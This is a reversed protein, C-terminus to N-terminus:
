LKWATLTTSSVNGAPDRVEITVTNDGSASLPVVATFSANLVAVWTNGGDVSYELDSLPIAPDSVNLVATMSGTTTATAGGQWSATLTPPTTLPLVQLTYIPSVSADSFEFQASVPNVEGLTLGVPMTDVYPLWPSWAAGDHSVRVSTPTGTPAFQLAAEGSGVVAVTQGGLTITGSASPITLAGSSGNNQAQPTSTVYAIKGSADSTLGNSDKAEVTVTHSGVVAPITVTTTPTYAQWATWTGGDVQFRIQGQGNSFGSGQISLTVPVTTSSTTPQGNNLQMQIVPPTANILELISASFSSSITGDLSLVQAYVTQTGGTGLPFQWSFSGTAQSVTNAPTTYSPSLNWLDNSPIPVFSPNPDSATAPQQWEFQIGAGGDGQEYQVMYPYWQGASLTITGSESSPAPMGQQTWANVLEQGNVMLTAGDDSPVAFTYTGSVPAYVYGNWIAGWDTGFNTPSGSNWLAQPAQGIGGTPWVSYSFNIQPDNESYMFHNFHSYDLAPSGTQNASVSTNAAFYYGEAGANGVNTAGSLPTGSLPQWPGWTSNDRSFRVAVPPTKAGYATVSLTVNPSSTIPAGGNIELSGSPNTDTTVQWGGVTFWPGGSPEVPQIQVNYDTGPTLGTITYSHQPYTVNPGIQRQSWNNQAALSQPEWLVRILQTSSKWVTPWDVTISTSTVASIQSVNPTNSPLFYNVQPGYAASGGVVIGPDAPDLYQASASISYLHGFQTPLSTAPGGVAGGAVYQTNFWGGDPNADGVQYTVNGWDQANGDMGQAALSSGNFSTTAPVQGWTTWNSQLSVNLSPAAAVTPGGTLQSLTISPNTTASIEASVMEGSPGIAMSLEGQYQYSIDGYGFIQYGASYGYPNPPSSAISTFGSSPSYEEGNLTWLRADQGWLIPSQPMSSGDTVTVWSSGNWEQLQGAINAWVGGDPGVIAGYVWNTGLSWSDVVGGSSNIEYIVSPQTAPDTGYNDVTTMLVTNHPGPALSIPPSVFGTSNPAPVDSAVISWTSTSMDYQLIVWDAPTGGRGNYSTNLVSEALWMNGNPGIMMGGLQVDGAWLYCGVWNDQVIPPQPIQKWSGNVFRAVAVDTVTAGCQNVATSNYAIWVNGDPGVALDNAGSQPAELGTSGSFITTWTGTAALVPKAFSTVGLLLMALAAFVNVGQVVKNWM